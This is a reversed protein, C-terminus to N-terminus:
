AAGGCSTCGSSSSRAPAAQAYGNGVLAAMDVTPLTATPAPAPAAKGACGDCCPTKYLALVLLAGGAIAGGVVRASPFLIAGAAAGSAIAGWWLPSVNPIRTFDPLQM